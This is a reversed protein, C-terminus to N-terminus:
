SPDTSAKSKNLKQKKLNLSDLVAEYIKDLEDPTQMYYNLSQNYISDNLGKCHFISDEYYRFVALASDRNLSLRAIKAEAVYIDTLIDVMQERTLVDDPPGEEGCAGIIILSLLLLLRM